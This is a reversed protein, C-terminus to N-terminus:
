GDRGAAGASPAIGLPPAAEQRRHPGLDVASVLHLRQKHRDDGRRREQRKDRHTPRIQIWAAAAPEGWARGTARPWCSRRRGPPALEQAQHGGLCRAGGLQEGRHPELDAARVGLWPPGLAAATGLAAASRVVITEVKNM